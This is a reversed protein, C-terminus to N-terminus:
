FYMVQRVIDRRIINKLPAITEKLRHIVPRLSRRKYRNDIWTDTRFTLTYNGLSCFILVNDRWIIPRKGKDLFVNANYGNTLNRLHGIPTLVCLMRIGEVTTIDIGISTSFQGTTVNSKLFYPWLETHFLNYLKWDYRGDYFIMQHLSGNINQIHTETRKPGRDCPFFKVLQFWFKTITKFHGDIM